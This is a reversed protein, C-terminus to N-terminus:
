SFLTVDSIYALVNVYKNLRTRTVISIDINAPDFPSAYFKPVELPNTELPLNPIMCRPADACKHIIITYILTVNSIDALVNVYKNLTRKGNGLNDKSSIKGSFANRLYNTIVSEAINLATGFILSQWSQSGFSVAHPSNLTGTVVAIKTM